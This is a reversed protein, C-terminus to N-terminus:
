WGQHFRRVRGGIGFGLELSGIVTRRKVPGFDVSWCLRFTPPVGWSSITESQLRSAVFQKERRDWLLQVRGTHDLRRRLFSDTRILNVFRVTLWISHGAFLTSHALRFLLFHTPAKAWTIWRKHTNHNEALQNWWVVCSAICNDGNRRRRHFFQVTDFWLCWSRRGTSYICDADYPNVAGVVRICAANRTPELNRDLTAM